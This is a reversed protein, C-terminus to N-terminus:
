DTNDSKLLSRLAILKERKAWQGNLDGFTVTNQFNIVKSKMGDYSSPFIVSYDRMDIIFYGVVGNALIDGALYPYKGWLHINGPGVLVCGKPSKLIEDHGNIKIRKWTVGNLGITTANHYGFAILMVCLLAFIAVAWASIKLFTKIKM